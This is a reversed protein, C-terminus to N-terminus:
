EKKEFIRNVNITELLILIAFFPLIWVIRSQLRDLVNALAGTVFANCIVCLIFLWGLFPLQENVMFRTKLETAYFGLILLLSLILIFNYRKNVSPIIPEWDGNNQMSANFENLEHRLHKRIHVNPATNKGYIEIGNGVDNHLLQRFTAEAAKVVHMMIYPPHTLTYNIIQSYEKESGRWYGTKYFPGNGEWIFNIATAPLSDKYACLSCNNKAEPGTKCNEKLYKDLIGTEVLRGMIFVHAGYSIRYKRGVRRNVEPLIFWSAVISLFIIAFRLLDIEKRRFKGKILYFVGFIVILITFSLLNSNHTLLALILILVNITKEFYSNVKGSILLAIALIGYATFIDPMIQSCFWSVSTLFALLAFVIIKIIHSNNRTLYADMVRSLLYSLIIGQFYIVFWLSQKLSINRIFWGYIVPRDVPVFYEFGSAVYTGTDSTVLPFGNVLGISILILAGPLIFLVEGVVKVFREDKLNIKSIFSM